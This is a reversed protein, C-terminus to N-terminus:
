ERGVAATGVGANGTEPTREQSLALRFGIDEGHTTSEFGFRFAVRTDEAHNGWGGGRGAHFVWTDRPSRRSDAWTPGQPNNRPGALAYDEVFFDACWEWVNGLMDHLGFPNARFSGVPATAVFGDTCDRFFIEALWTRRSPIYRNYMKAGRKFSRDLVNAYGCACSFSDGWFRASSTGGRAAYEWEAETPLRFRKGSKESLWASFRQTDEWTVHVVPQNDDNLSIGEFAGSDHDPRYQRFQGNSVEYRGLWFGDVCVEHCAEQERYVYEDRGLEKRLYREEAESRGMQFCGGPIYVFVMGTVPEKWIDRAQPGPEGAGVTATHLLLLAGAIMCYLGFKRM